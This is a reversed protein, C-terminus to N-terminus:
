TSNRGYIALKIYLYAMALYTKIEINAQTRKRLDDGKTFNLNSISIGALLGRANVLRWWSEPTGGLRKAQWEPAANAARGIQGTAQSTIRVAYCVM